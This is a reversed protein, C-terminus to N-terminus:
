ADDPPRNGREIQDAVECAWAVHDRMAHLAFDSESVLADILAVELREHTDSERDDDAVSWGDPRRSVVLRRGDPTL